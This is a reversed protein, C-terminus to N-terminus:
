KGRARRSEARTTVPSDSGNGGTASYPRGSNAPMAVGSMAPMVNPCM